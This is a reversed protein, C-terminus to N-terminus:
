AITRYLETMEEPPRVGFSRIENRRAGKGKEAVFLERTYPAHIVGIIPEGDKLLALTTTFFTHRMIFNTTGDLPDIIWIVDASPHHTGSEEALIGHDPYAKLITNMIAQEAKIDVECCFEGQAKATVKLHAISDLHRVIIEGALRAATVAINLLPLM